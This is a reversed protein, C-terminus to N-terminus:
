IYIRPYRYKNYLHEGELQTIFDINYLNKINREKRIVIVQNYIGEESMSLVIADKINFESVSKNIFEIIKDIGDRVLELGKTWPTTPNSCDRFIRAAWHLTVNFTFRKNGSKLLTIGNIEANYINNNVWNQLKYHLDPEGVLDLIRRDKVDQPLSKNKDIEDCDEKIGEVLFEYDETYGDKLLRDNEYLLNLYKEAESGEILEIKVNPRFLRQYQSENILINM